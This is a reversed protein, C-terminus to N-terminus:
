RRHFHKNLIEGTNLNILKQNTTQSDLGGLSPIYRGTKLYDLHQQIDNTITDLGTYLGTKTNNDKAYKLFQILTDPEWEGGMFLICTFYGTYRQVISKFIDFTLENTPDGWDRWHCNKCDNPCGHISFTLSIEGPIEQMLVDYQYYKM